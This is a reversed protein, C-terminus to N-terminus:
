IDRIIRPRCYSFSLFSGPLRLVCPALIYSQGEDDAMQGGICVDPFVSVVVVALDALFVWFSVVAVAVALFVSVMFPLNNLARPEASDRFPLMKITVREM